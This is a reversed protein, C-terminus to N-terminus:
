AFKKPSLLGALTSLICAVVVTILYSWSPFSVDRLLMWTYFQSLLWLFLCALIGGFLGVVIQQVLTTLAMTRDSLGILSLFEWTAIRYRMQARLCLGVLGTAILAILGGILGLEGRLKESWKAVELWLRRPYVVAKVGNWKQANSALSDIVTATIKGFRVRILGPFPNYGFLEILNDGTEKQVEDLVTQPPVYQVFEADPWQEALTMVHARTSDSDNLLEIEVTLASLFETQLHNIVFASGVLAGISAAGMSLLATALLTLTPRSRLIGLGLRIALSIGSM